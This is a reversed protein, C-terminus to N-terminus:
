WERQDDGAHEHTEIVNGAEDYVRIIARHSRSRHKADDIANEIGNPEAYCLRGFPLADSILDDARPVRTYDRTCGCTPMSISREIRWPLASQDDFRRRMVGGYLLSGRANQYARSAEDLTPFYGLHKVKGNRCIQTQYKGRKPRFYVGRVGSKGVPQRRQRRNSAQQKPTAWRCNSPMYHGRRKKNARKNSRM